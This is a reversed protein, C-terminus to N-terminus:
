WIVECCIEHSFRFRRWWALIMLLTRLFYAAGIHMHVVHKDRSSGYIISFEVQFGENCGCKHMEKDTQRIFL